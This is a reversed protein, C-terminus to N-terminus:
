LGYYGEFSSGDWWKRPFGRWSDYIDFILWRLADRVGHPPSAFAHNPGQAPLGSIGRALQAGWACRARMLFCVEPSCEPWHKLELFGEFAARVDAAHEEEVGQKEFREKRISESPDSWGMTEPEDAYPVWTALAECCDALWLWHDPPTPDKPRAPVPLGVPPQYPRKKKAAV